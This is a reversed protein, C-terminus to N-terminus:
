EIKGKGTFCEVYALRCHSGLNLEKLLEALEYLEDASCHPCGVAVADADMEAFLDEVEQREITVRELDETEFSFVRTEPTIKDVHFLAVAGTAAM